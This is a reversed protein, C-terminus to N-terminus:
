LGPSQSVSRGGRIHPDTVPLLRDGGSAQGYVRNQIHLIARSGRDRCLGQSRCSSPLIRIRRNKRDQEPFLLFSVISFRFPKSRIKVLDVEGQDPSRGGYAGVFLRKKLT